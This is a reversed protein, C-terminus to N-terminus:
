RGTITILGSVATSVAGVCKVPANTLSLGAKVPGCNENAAVGYDGGQAAFGDIALLYGAPISANIIGSADTTGSFPFVYTLEGTLSLSMGPIDM